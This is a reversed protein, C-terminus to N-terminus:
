RADHEANQGPSFQDLQHRLFEELLQRQNKGGRRRNPENKLRQSFKGRAIARGCFVKARMTRVKRLLYRSPPRSKKRRPKPAIIIIWPAGFINPPGCAHACVPATMFFKPM